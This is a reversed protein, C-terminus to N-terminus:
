RAEEGPTRATRRRPQQRRESDPDQGDGGVPNLELALHARADCINRRIAEKTKGLKEAIEDRDLGQAILEMVERQAASLSSLMHAVWEEDERVTLQRDEAGEQHSVHGQEILRRVVRRTGRKKDKIFNHVTAKRAYALSPGCTGWRRLMEALAKAAADEAEDLTAGAYMATRVLERFSGRFFEEFGAPPAPPCIEPIPITVAQAASAQNPEVV